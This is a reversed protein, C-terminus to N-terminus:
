FYEQLICELSGIACSIQESAKGNGYNLQVDNEEIESQLKVLQEQIRSLKNIEAKNLKKRM